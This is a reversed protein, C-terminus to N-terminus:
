FERALTWCAKKQKKITM